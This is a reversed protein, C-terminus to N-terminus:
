IRLCDLQHNIAVLNLFICLDSQIVESIILTFIVITIIQANSRRVGIELIPSLKARSTTAVM